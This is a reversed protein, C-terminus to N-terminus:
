QISLVSVMTSKCMMICQVRHLSCNLAVCPCLLLIHLQVELQTCSCKLSHAAAGETYDMLLDRIQVHATTGMYM